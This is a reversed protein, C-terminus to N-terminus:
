RLLLLHPKQEDRAAASLATRVRSFCPRPKPFPSTFRFLLPLPLLTFTTPTCPAAVSQSHRPITNTKIHHPNSKLPLSPPPTPPLPPLHHSTTSLSIYLSLQLLTFLSLLSLSLPPAFLIPHSLRGTIYISSNKRTQEEEDIYRKKPGGEM